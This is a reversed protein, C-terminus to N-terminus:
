AGHYNVFTEIQQSLKLMAESLTERSLKTSQRLRNRTETDDITNIANESADFQKSLERVVHGLTARSALCSTMATSICTEAESLVIEANKRVFLPVVNNM